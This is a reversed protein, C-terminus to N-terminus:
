FIKKEALAEQEQALYSTKNKQSSESLVQLNKTVKAQMFTLNENSKKLPTQSFQESSLSTVLSVNLLAFEPRERVAALVYPQFQKYTRRLEEKLDDDLEHFADNPGVHTDIIDFFDKMAKQAIQLKSLQDAFLMGKEHYYSSPERNEEVPLTMAVYPHANIKLSTKQKQAQYANAESHLMSKRILVTKFKADRAEDLAQNIDSLITAKCTGLATFHNSIGLDKALVALNIQNPRLELAQTILKDFDEYHIAFFTQFKKYDTLLNNKETPTLKALNWNYNLVTYYSGIKEFFREAAALQEPEAKILIEAENLRRIQYTKRQALFIEDQM